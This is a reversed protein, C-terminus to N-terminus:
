YGRGFRSPAAHLYVAPDAEQQEVIEQAKRFKAMDLPRAKPERGSVPRGRKRSPPFPRGTKSKAAM